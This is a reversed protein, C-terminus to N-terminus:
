FYCRIESCICMIKNIHNISSAKYANDSKSICICLFFVNKYMNVKTGCHATYHLASKATLHDALLTFLIHLCFYLDLRTLNNRECAQGRRRRRATHTPQSSLSLSHAALHSVAAAVCSTRVSKNEWKVQSICFTGWQKSIIVQRQINSLAHTRLHSSSSHEPLCRRIFLSSSESTSDSCISNWLAKAREKHVAVM